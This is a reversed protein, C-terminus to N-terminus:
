LHVNLVCVRLKIGIFGQVVHSEVPTQPDMMLVQYRMQTQQPPTVYQNVNHMLQLQDPPSHLPAVVTFVLIAM